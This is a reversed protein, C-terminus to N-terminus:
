TETNSSFFFFFSFSFLSVACFLFILLKTLAEDLRFCLNIPDCHDLGSPMGRSIVVTEFYTMSPSSSGLLGLESMNGSGTYTRTHEGKKRYCSETCCENGSVWILCPHLKLVSDRHFLLLHLEGPWHGEEGCEPCSNMGLLMGEAWFCWPVWVSGLFPSVLVSTSLLLAMSPEPLAPNNLDSRFCSVSLNPHACM